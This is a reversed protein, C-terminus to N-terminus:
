LGRGAFHFVCSRPKANYSDSNSNSHLVRVTDCVVCWAGCVLCWLGVVRVGGWQHHHHHHIIILWSGSSWPDSTKHYIVVAALANLCGPVPVPAPAPAPTNFASDSDSDTTPILILWRPRPRPKTRQNQNQNFRWHSANANASASARHPMHCIHATYHREQEQTHPKLKFKIQLLLM